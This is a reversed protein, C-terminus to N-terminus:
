GERIMTSIEISRKGVQKAWRSAMMGKAADDWRGENIARNTVQFKRTTGEGINFLWDICANKRNESFNDFDQYLRKCAGIAVMIDSDLLRDVMEETIEGYIELCKAIDSPLPNAIINHGVGITKIGVTDKYVKNRVGEHRRLMERLKGNM